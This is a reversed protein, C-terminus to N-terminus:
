ERLLGKESATPLEPHTACRAVVAVRWSSHRIM